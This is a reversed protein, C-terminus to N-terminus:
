PPTQTGVTEPPAKVVNNEREPTSQPIGRFQTMTYAYAGIFILGAIVLSILLTKSAEKKGSSAISRM